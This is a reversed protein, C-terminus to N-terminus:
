KKIVDEFPMVNGDEIDKLWQKIQEIEEFSYGSQRLDEITEQSIM